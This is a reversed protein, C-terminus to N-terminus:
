ACLAQIALWMMALFSTIVIKQKCGFFPSRNGLNDVFATGPGELGHVIAAGWAAITLRRRIELGVLPSTMATTAIHIAGAGRNL